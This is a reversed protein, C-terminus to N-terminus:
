EESPEKTVSFPEEVEIVGSDVIKCEQVPKDRGDTKTNEVQRVFKMGELVKGFVVHRGNLWTTKETTIFFQSGNTDKGANAMSVWGAGYHELKFNEDAFKDGYISKGGTGDGKTFDGGQIMFGKIVRHFASGKYGFGKEGSALAAFNEATKPVTKGFLGIVVKGVPEGGISIDFFVKKTVKPGKSAETTKSTFYLFAIICLVILTTLKAMTSKPWTAM